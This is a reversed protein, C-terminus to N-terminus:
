LILSVSDKKTLLQNDYKQLKSIKFNLQRFQLFIIILQECLFIRYTLSNRCTLSKKRTSQNGGGIFFQNRTLEGQYNYIHLINFIFSIQHNTSLLNLFKLYPAHQLTHKSLSCVAFNFLNSYTFCTFILSDLTQFNYTDM